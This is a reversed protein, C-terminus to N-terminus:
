GMKTATITNGNKQIFVRGEVIVGAVLEYVKAIAFQLEIDVETIQFRHIEVPKNNSYWSTLAIKVAEDTPARQFVPNAKEEWVVKEITEGEDYVKFRLNGTKSIENGDDTILDDVSIIYNSYGLEVRRIEFDSPLPNGGSDLAVKGTARVIPPNNNVKRLNGVRSYKTKLYTIFNVKDM